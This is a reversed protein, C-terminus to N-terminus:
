QKRGCAELYRQRTADDTMPFSIHHISACVDIPPSITCTPLGNPGIAPPPCTPPQYDWMNGMTNWGDTPTPGAAGPAICATLTLAM